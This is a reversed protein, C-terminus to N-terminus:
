WRVGWLRVCPATGRGRVLTAEDPSFGSRVSGIHGELYALYLM